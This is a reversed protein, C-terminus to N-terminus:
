ARDGDTQAGKEEAVPEQVAQQNEDKPVVVARVAHTLRALMEEPIPDAKSYDDIYTDLGDMVNFRPDAFLKKLAARKVGEEVKSHMFAKFDSEFTLSDLPPLQPPEQQAVPKQAASERKLRSWRRLFDRKEDGMLRAGPGQAVPVVAAQHAEEARPPLDEGRVGGGVRVGRGADGGFGGARRRGDLPEGRRLERHRVAAGRAGAGHAVDRVRAAGADVRQPLLGRIGLPAPGDRVRSLAVAHGRGARRH